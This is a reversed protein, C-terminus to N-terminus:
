LPKRLLVVDRDVQQIELQFRGALWRFVAASYFNLHTPDNKYQWRYFRERNIVMQTMVSLWAGPRLLAVLQEWDDAPRRFHEVTETCTVFDYTRTLVDANPAYFPDYLAVRMGAESLMQALAPGPGCGYDLGAMGPQLREILPTALRALFARYGSDGPDNQHLDYIAKEAAADLHSAPDAFVLDCQPCQFYSRQTDEAYFRSSYACLPCNHM